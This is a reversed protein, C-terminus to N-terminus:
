QVIANCANNVNYKKPKMQNDLPRLVADEIYCQDSSYFSLIIMQIISNAAFM